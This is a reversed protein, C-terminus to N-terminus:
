AALHACVSKPIYIWGELQAAALEDPAPHHFHAQCRAWSAACVFAVVADLCDDNALCNNRVATLDLAPWGTRTPLGDLINRRLAQAKASRAKYRISPLGCVQLFAGPMTELLTVTHEPQATPAMPPVYWRGHPNKSHLRRLMQIGHYTMPPMNLRRTIHLPSFPASLHKADGARHPEGSCCYLTDAPLPVVGAQEPNKYDAVFQDRAAIFEAQTMGADAIGDAIDIDIDDDDAIDIDINDDYAIAQWVDPMVAPKLDGCLRAAFARPVGFPFDMAAVAPAATNILLETSLQARPIPWANDLRLVGDDNLLGRAIWTNNDAQAGSYDVGIITTPM